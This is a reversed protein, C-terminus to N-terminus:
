ISNRDVYSKDNHMFYAFDLKTAGRLSNKIWKNVKKAQKHLLNKLHLNSIQPPISLNENVQSINRELKSLVESPNIDYREITDLKDKLPYMKIEKM